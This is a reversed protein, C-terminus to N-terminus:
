LKTNIIKNHIDLVQEEVLMTGDNNITYDAYALREKDSLQNAIRRAIEEKSLNDRKTVREIRLKEPATVIILFDLTQYAKSEILIAAEKIIYSHKNHKNCWKEFDAKVAPHVIENITNLKSKNNFVIEALYSRNLGNANYVKEGFASILQKIVHTDHEMLFKGQTDSNYIPVGLKSFINSVYTKGSGIGGTLGIKIM